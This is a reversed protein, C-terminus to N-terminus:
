EGYGMLRRVEGIGDVFRQVDEATNYFAFSARTTSNLGLYDMLPQACHHGARVCVGKSDLISAIDHPHVGDITFTVIGCHEQAMQSGVVHVGKMSSLGEMALATLAQEQAHITDFGVRNIYEIAARLGVADGANVTGAEFKHPVPAYTVRDWHVTEIMEGGSLFPPMEELLAMKGYLVGIGMPALMKHGSFALFDVDLDQVDVPMHPVSQAGDAVLVAGYEHVVSAIAKLDNVRGLVNSAQTVAVLRTRDSLVKRLADETIEGEPTPRLPKLVAGKEDALKKWPLFNSHHEMVSVVIEDGANINAAGYSYAVLNLSETANRTFIVEDPSGANIFEAVAKRSAEYEETSAESLRYVGRFPNSNSKEYYERVADLVQRPKQTTAANDLYAIDGEALLPFDKRFEAIVSELEMM